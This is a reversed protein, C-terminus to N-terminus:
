MGYFTSSCLNKQSNKPGLFTEILDATTLSFVSIHFLNNVQKAESVEEIVWPQHGEKHDAYLFNKNKRRDSRRTYQKETQLSEKEKEM